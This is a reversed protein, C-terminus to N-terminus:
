GPKRAHLVCGAALEFNKERSLGRVFESDLYGIPDGILDSVKMCLFKEKAAGELGKSWSRLFWTLTWIPLGSEVVEIGDIVLSREFLNALGQATMNYYHAPFDHVPQLFPVSCQLEGGPKLVRAIEDACVFPNKVHELLCYSIVAEFSSDKFPLVEALGVVDTTDYRFMDLNVVNDFYVPRRGAGCDLVLGEGYKGILNIIRDDYHHSSPIHAPGPISRDRQDDPLFDFCDDNKLHPLDARLLSRIRAMKTKKAESIRGPIRIRRKESIGFRDFHQKASSLRGDLVAAAVDPNADLYCKEDFNNETAEEELSYGAM